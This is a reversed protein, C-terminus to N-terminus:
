VGYLGCVVAWKADDLGMVKNLEPPVPKKLRPDGGNNDIHLNYGVIVDRWTSYESASGFIHRGGPGNLSYRWSDGFVAVQGTTNRKLYVAEEEDDPYEPAPGPMPSAGGLFELPSVNVGNRLVEFHLHVALGSTAGFQSNGMSGIRQGLAVVQGMAVAPPGDFHASRTSYGNTHSIVVHHGYGHSDSADSAWDGGTVKGALVAFVAQGRAGQADIGMHRRTVNGTADYERPALYRTAPQDNYAWPDTPYVMGGGAPTGVLAEASPPTAMGAAVTGGALGLVALLARRSLGPSTPDGDARVDEPEM